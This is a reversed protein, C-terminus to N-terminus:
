KLEEYVRILKDVIKGWSYDEAYCAARTGMRRRLVENTLLRQIADALAAPDKVRVRIGTVNHRVLQSLGGVCRFRRCAHRM